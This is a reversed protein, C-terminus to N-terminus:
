CIWIVLIDKLECFIKSVVPLEGSIFLPLLILNENQFYWKPVYSWSITTNKQMEGDHEMVHELVIRKLLM